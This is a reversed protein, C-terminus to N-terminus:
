TVQDRRHITSLEPLLRAVAAGRTRVGVRDFIHEMHKRVTSVSLFLIAAIEANGHGQAALELVEWERPTLVGRRRRVAGAYIEAVHPRLLTLLDKDRDSFDPGTHRWFMLNREHGAPAPLGVSLFHRRGMPRFFELYLHNHQLMRGPYRDTWRRVQGAASPLFGTWQRPYDRWFIDLAGPFSEGTAVYRPDDALVDQQLERERNVLDLGCISVEEAPILCALDDLLSWPLMPGPEDDNADGIMSTLARLDFGRGTARITM